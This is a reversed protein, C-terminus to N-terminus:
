SAAPTLRAALDRLQTFSVPKLLVLDSEDHLMDAMQPDATVIVVRTHALQNDARIRRLIEDGSLRPLHLDLIIIDPRARQLYDLADQGDYIILTDCGSADLAAKFITALDENDEIILGRPKNM